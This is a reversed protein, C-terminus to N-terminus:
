IAMKMIVKGKGTEGEWKVVEWGSGERSLIGFMTGFKEPVTSVTLVRYGMSRAYDRTANLLISFLGQGRASPHVASLFIHYSSLGDRSRPYTLFMSLLPQPPPQTTAESSSPSIHQDQGGDESTSMSRVGDGTDSRVVYLIDAGEWSLRERWLGIDLNRHGPSVTRHEGESVDPEFVFRALQHAELLRAEDIQSDQKISRVQFM